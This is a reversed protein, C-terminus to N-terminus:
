RDEFRGTERRIRQEDIQDPEWQVRGEMGGAVTLVEGTIHRALSPSSLFAVARAIDDARALQRLPMTRTVAHIVGKQELEARAMETVTWGPEVMNVRARADIRVIENKLSRVLGLLGAKSAAYDTHGLEGFRGATSGILVVAAGCGDARAGRRALEAMFARVTWIAGLLNTELTERIRNASAEHLLESARPWVGANAVCVDVRGFTQAGRSVVAEIAAPDCVDAEALVARERWPRGAVREQLEDFRRRAQLVLRCGQEAFVDALARGIGGSAGTILVVKDALGTDM